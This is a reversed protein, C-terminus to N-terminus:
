AQPDLQSDTKAWENYLSNSVEDFGVTYMGNSLQHRVEQVVVGSTQTESPGPTFWWTGVMKEPISLGKEEESVPESKAQLQARTVMNGLAEVLWESHTTILVRHENTILSALISFLQVQMAPHLHSEPEEVVILNGAQVRYRLFMVIPALEGVMSSAHLM